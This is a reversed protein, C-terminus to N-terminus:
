ARPWAPTPPPSTSPWWSHAARPMPRPSPPSPM